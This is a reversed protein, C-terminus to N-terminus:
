VRMEMKVPINELKNALPLPTEIKVKETSILPSKRHRSNYYVKLDEVLTYKLTACTRFSPDDMTKQPCLGLCLPLIRCESCKEISFPDFDLWKTHNKNLQVGNFVDGIIEDPNTVM